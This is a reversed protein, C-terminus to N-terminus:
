APPVTTERPSHVFPPAVVADIDCVVKNINM